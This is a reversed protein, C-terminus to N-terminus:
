FESEAVRRALRRPAIHTYSTHIWEEVERWRAASPRAGLTVRVWGARGLGYGAPQAAPDSATVAAAEDRDLKVTIATAKTDSFVFTKGNVRFTPHDDWAAVDVRVAEPLRAVIRELRRM